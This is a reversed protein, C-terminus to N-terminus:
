RFWVAIVIQTLGVGVGVIAVAIGVWMLRTTSKNLRDMAGVQNASLRSNMVANTADRLAEWTAGTTGTSGLRAILLRLVEDPEAQEVQAMFKDPKEINPTEIFKWISDARRAVEDYEMVRMWVEM